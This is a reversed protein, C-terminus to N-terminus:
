GAKHSAKRLRYPTLLAEAPINWHKSLKQAMGMTLPRRRNLIESARPRSGLLRALDGATYGSLEMRYKIAEVADPPEVPWHRAEYADILSALIDFREADATGRRPESEFYREIEALAWDYDAENRIARIEM